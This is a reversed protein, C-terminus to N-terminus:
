IGFQLSCSGKSGVIRGTCFKDRLYCLAINSYFQRYYFFLYGVGFPVAMCCFIVCITFINLCYYSISWHYSCALGQLCKVPVTENLELLLETSSTSYKDRNVSSCVSACLPWWCRWNSSVQLFPASLCSGYPNCSIPWPLTKVTFSAIILCFHVM